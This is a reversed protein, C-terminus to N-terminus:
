KEIAKEVSWWHIGGACVAMASKAVIDILWSLIMLLLVAKLDHLPWNCHLCTYCWSEQLTFYIVLAQTVCFLRQVVNLTTQQNLVCVSLIFLRCLFHLKIRRHTVCAPILGKRSSLWAPHTQPSVANGTQACTFPFRRKLPLAAAPGFTTCTSWM